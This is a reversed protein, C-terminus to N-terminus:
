WNYTYTSDANVDWRKRNVVSSFRFEDSTFRCLAMDSAASCLPRGWGVPSHSVCERSRRVGTGGSRSRCSWRRRCQARVRCTAPWCRGNRQRWPRFGGPRRRGCARRWSCSPRRSRGRQRDAGLLPQAAVHMRLVLHRQFDHEVILLDVLHDDNRDFAVPADDVLVDVADVVRNASTMRSPMSAPSNAPVPGTMADRQKPAAVTM